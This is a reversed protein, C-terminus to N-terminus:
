HGLHARKNISSTLMLGLIINAGELMFMRALMEDQADLNGSNKCEAIYHDVTSEVESHVDLTSM